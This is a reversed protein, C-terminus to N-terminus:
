DRDRRRGTQRCGELVKLIRRLSGDVRSRATIAQEPAYRASGPRIQLGHCLWLQQSDYVRTRTVMYCHFIMTNSM